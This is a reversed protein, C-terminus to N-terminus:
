RQHAQILKIFLVKTNQQGGQSEPVGLDLHSDIITVNEQKCSWVGAHELITETIVLYCQCTSVDYEVHLGRSVSTTDDNSSM